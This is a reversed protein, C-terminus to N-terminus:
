VRWGKKGRGTAIVGSTGSAARKVAFSNQCFCHMVVMRDLGEWDEEEAWEVGATRM